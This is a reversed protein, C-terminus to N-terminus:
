KSHNHKESDIQSISTSMQHLEGNMKKFLLFFIINLLIRPQFAKLYKTSLLYRAKNNRRAEAGQRAPKASM